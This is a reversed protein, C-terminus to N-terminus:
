HSLICQNVLYLFLPTLWLFINGFFKNGSRARVAQRADALYSNYGLSDNLSTAALDNIVLGDEVPPRGLGVLFTPLNL